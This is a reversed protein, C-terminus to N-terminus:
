RGVPPPRGGGPPVTRGLFFGESGRDQYLPLVLHAPSPARIEGNRDTALLEGREVPQFSRLGPRMRFREEGTVSHVHVLELMRPHGRASERLRERAAGLRPSGVSFIGLEALFLWLADVARRESAPDDHPGAEFVLGAVGAGALAVLLTGHLAEVLGLVTPVPLTLAMARETSTDRVATFPPGVGSTTHLDLVFVPGRAREQIIRFTRRLGEMERAEAGKSRRDGNWIRNLDRDMFRVGEALAGLNGAVAVFEGRRVGNRALGSGVRELARVGAPENGHLGGVGVLTPGAAPGRVEHLIRNM